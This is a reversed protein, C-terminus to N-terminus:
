QRLTTVIPGDEAVFLSHEFQSVMGDKGEILVPYDRIAGVRLLTNLADPVDVKSSDLWRSAWPLTGFRKRAAKRVQNTLSDLKTKNSMINSFIYSNSGAKITGNGDTAFPEIAYTEGLRMRPSRRTRVNPVNNGAHLNWPKMQHGSLQHIPRLGHKKIAREIAAGVEGVPVGPRVVEIAADLGAQAAAIFREFSGDLDVTVATDAIHGNLHTGLDVKVLGKDPFTRKDGHPSTYHAAEENTSVNLPFAIGGGYELIRKEAFTCVKLVKVGPKVLQATEKLVRAALRGAKIFDPNPSSVAVAEVV